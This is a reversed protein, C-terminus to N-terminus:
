KLVARKLDVAYQDPQTRSKSQVKVVHQNKEREAMGFKVELFFFLKHQHATNPKEWVHYIYMIAM